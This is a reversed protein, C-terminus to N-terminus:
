SRRNQMRMPMITPYMAAAAVPKSVSASKWDTSACGSMASGVSACTLKANSGSNIMGNATLPRAAAIPAVATM